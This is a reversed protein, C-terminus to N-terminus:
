HDTCCSEHMYCEKACAGHQSLDLASHNPDLYGSAETRTLRAFVERAVGAVDRLRLWAESDDWAVDLTVDGEWSVEGSPIGDPEISNGGKLRAFSSDLSFSPCQHGIQSCSVSSGAHPLFVALVLLFPLALGGKRLM